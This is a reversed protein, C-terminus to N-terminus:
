RRHPFSSEISHMHKGKAIKRSRKQRGGKQGLSLASVPDYVNVYDTQKRSRTRYRDMIGSGKNFTTISSVRKRHASSQALTGGLSHGTVVFEYGPYQRELEAQMKKARKFRPHSREAGFFLAVDASIDKKKATGRHAVYIKKSAEDKYAQMEGKNQVLALGHEDAYAQREAASGYAKGSIDKLLLDSM